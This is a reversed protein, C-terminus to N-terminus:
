SYFDCAHWVVCTIQTMKYASIMISLPPWKVRHRLWIQGKVILDLGSLLGIKLDINKGLFHMTEVLFKESNWIGIDSTKTVDDVIHLVGLFQLYFIVDIVKESHPVLFRWFYIDIKKFNPMLLKNHSM